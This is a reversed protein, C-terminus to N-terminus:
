GSFLDDSLRRLSSVREEVISHSKGRLRVVEEPTPNDPVMEVLGRLDQIPESMLSVVLASRTIGVRGSIYDLDEVLAPPISLTVKRCNQYSM